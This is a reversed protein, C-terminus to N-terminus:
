HNDLLGYFVFSYGLAGCQCAAAHWAAPRSCGFSMLSLPIVGGAEAFVEVWSIQRSWFVMMQLMVRGVFVMGCLICLLERARATPATAKPNCRAGRESAIWQLGLSAILLTAKLVFRLTKWCAGDMGAM